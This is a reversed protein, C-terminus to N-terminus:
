AMEDLRGLEAEAAALRRHRSVTAQAFDALPLGLGGAAPDTDEGGPALPERALHELMAATRGARFGARRALWFGLIAALVALAALWPAAAVFLSLAFETVGAETFGVPLQLVTAGAIAGYDTLVQQWFIEDQGSTLRGERVALLTPDLVTEGIEVPDTSFRAQGIEDVVSVAGLGPLGLRATDLLRDIGPLQALPLGLALRAELSATLDQLILRAHDNLAAARRQAHDHSWLVLAATGAFLVAGVLAAVFRTTLGLSPM